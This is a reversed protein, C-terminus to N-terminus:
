ITRKKEVLEDIRLFKVIPYMFMINLYQIADEFSLKKLLDELSKVM